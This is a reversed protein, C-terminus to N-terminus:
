DHEAPSDAHTHEIAELWTLHLHVGLLRRRERRDFLGRPSTRPM